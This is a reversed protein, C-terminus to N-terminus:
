PATPASPPAAPAAATVDPSPAAADLVRVQLTAPAGRRHIRLVWIGAGRLGSYAALVEQPTTTPRGNISRLLDGNRLGLAAVVSGARISWLRYGLVGDGENAPLARVERAFVLLNTLALDRAERTITASGPSVRSIGALVRAAVSARPQEPAPETAAPSAGAPTTSADTGPPRPTRAADAASPADARTTLPRTTLMLSTLSTLLLLAVTPWRNLM